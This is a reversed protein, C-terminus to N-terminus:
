AYKDPIWRLGACLAEWGVMELVDDYTALTMFAVVAGTSNNGKLMVRWGIEVRSPTRGIRKQVSYTRVGDRTSVKLNM